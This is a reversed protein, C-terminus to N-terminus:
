ILERTLDFMKIFDPNKELIHLLQDIKAVREVFMQRQAKLNPVLDRNRIQSGVQQALEQGARGMPAEYNNDYAM